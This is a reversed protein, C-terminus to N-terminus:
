RTMRSLSDISKKFSQSRLNDERKVWEGSEGMAMRGM